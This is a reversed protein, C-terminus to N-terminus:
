KQIDEKRFTAIWKRSQDAAHFAAVFPTYKPAPNIASKHIQQVILGTGIAVCAVAVTAAVTCTKPNDACWPVVACGSLLALLLLAKV